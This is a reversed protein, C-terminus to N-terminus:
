SKLINLKLFAKFSGSFLLVDESRVTARVRSTSNHSSIREQRLVSWNRFLLPLVLFWSVVSVSLNFTM